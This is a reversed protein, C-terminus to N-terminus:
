VLAEMYWNPKSVKHDTISSWESPKGKLNSKEAVYFARYAKVADDLNGTNVKYEDPMAQAFPTPEGSELLDNVIMFHAAKTIPAYCAHVKGRRREYEKAAEIAAECLWLRNAGSELLWKVCPHHQHTKSYANGSKNVIGANKLDDATFGLLYLVTALMQMYELTMKVVHINCMYRSALIPSLSLVFINM